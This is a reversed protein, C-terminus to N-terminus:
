REFEREFEGITEDIGGVDFEEGGDFSRYLRYALYVIGAVVAITVVASLLSLVVSALASLIVLAVLGLVVLGATKLFRLTDM